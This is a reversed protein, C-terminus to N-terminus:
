AISSYTLQSSSSRRRLSRLTVLLIVAMGRAEPCERGLCTDVVGLVEISVEDAGILTGDVAPPFFCGPPWFLM